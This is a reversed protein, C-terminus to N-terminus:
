SILSPGPPRSQRSVHTLNVFKLCPAFSSGLIVSMGLSLLRRLAIRSARSPLARPNGSSAFAEIDLILGIGDILNPRVDIAIDRDLLQIPLGAESLLDPRRELFQIAAEITDALFAFFRDRLLPQIGDRPGPKADFALCLRFRSLAFLPKPMRSSVHTFDASRHVPPHGSQRFAEPPNVAPCILRSLLM